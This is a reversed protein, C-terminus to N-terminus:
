WGHLGAKQMAQVLKDSVDGYRPTLAAIQEKIHQRQTCGDVPCRSPVVPLAERRVFAEIEREKLFVMPRILRLERRDLYSNPSFCDLSANSLLSMLLTEAADDQHHGLAVVNCGLEQATRHLAGRRLRACLSCPTQGNQKEQVVNWLQTRKVTHPVELRECLATIARYDTEMGDFCLDLTVAHLSFSQPYFRRLAALLYLLAVSDKGGSVGVAVADGDTLMDYQEIAARLVALPQRRGAM